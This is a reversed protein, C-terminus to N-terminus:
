AAKLIEKIIQKESMKEFEKDTIRVLKIKNKKCFQNLKKDRCIQDYIKKDHQTKSKKIIELKRNLGHWYEGDLQIYIDLTKIFFDVRQGNLLEDRCVNKLGFNECLIIYLDEEAKSTEHTKKSMSIIVFVEALSFVEIDGNFKVLYAM